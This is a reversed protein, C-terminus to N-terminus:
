IKVAAATVYMFIMGSFFGSLSVPSILVSAGSLSSRVLYLSVELIVQLIAGAGIGLFLAAWQPSFAMSGIWIGLVAPGGAILALAVFTRLPPRVKLIPAAIGIGETINHVAFGVVLFTGLGALGTAFAAGIALGEGFNHLGIGLAIYFALAAGQPTGSRRGIATLCLFGAAAASLVLVPGQFLAAAAGALEFAAELTDVFLFALLGVTLALLFTMGQRGVNRLAPYFMLGVTVPLIGVVAGILTQSRLQGATATPTPVAAAIVAEFTAGTNTVFKVTHSEGLVWPYPISIWATQGRELTGMPDQVFQWYAADVQVQAIAMAESGGARVLFSMRGDELVSREITLNEIPPAGRSLNAFQDTAFLWGVIAALLLFPPLLWLWRGGNGQSSPPAKAVNETGNM